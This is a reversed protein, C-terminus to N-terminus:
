VDPPSPTVELGDTRELRHERATVHGKLHEFQPYRLILKSYEDLLSRLKSRKWPMRSHFPIKEVIEEAGYILSFATDFMEGHEFSSIRCDKDNISSIHEYQEYIYREDSIDKNKVHRFLRIDGGSELHCWSDGCNDSTYDIYKSILTDFSKIVGERRRLNSEEILLQTQTSIYEAQRKAEEAQQELVTRNLKFEERTLALEVRQERLEDSQIWVAAVLWLFAIPAFVGALFDGWESATLCSFTGVCSTDPNRATYGLCIAAFLWVLTAFGFLALKLGASKPSQNM